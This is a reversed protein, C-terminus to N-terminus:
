VAENFVTKFFTFFDNTTHLNLIKDAYFTEKILTEDEASLRRNVVLVRKIEPFYNKISFLLRICDLLDAGAIDILLFNFRRRKHSQLIFELAEDYQNSIEISYNMSTFQRLTEYSNTFIFVKFFLDNESIKMKNKGTGM